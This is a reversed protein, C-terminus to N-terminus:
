ACIAGHFAFQGSPSFEKTQIIRALLEASVKYLAKIKKKERVIAIYHLGQIWVAM